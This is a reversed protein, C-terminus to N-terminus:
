ETQRTSHTRNKYYIFLYIFQITATSPWFIIQESDNIKHWHLRMHNRIKVASCRIVSDCLILKSSANVTVPNISTNWSTSHSHICQTHQYNKVVISIITLLWHRWPLLPLCNGGRGRFKQSDSFQWLIKKRDSFKPGFIGMLPLISPM